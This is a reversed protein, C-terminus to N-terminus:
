AKKINEVLEEFHEQFIFHWRDEFINYKANPLVFSFYDYEYFPVILDDKSFYFNTISEYKKFENLKKDFLFSWIKENPTDQSAPAILHIQIINKITNENLYKLLFTWGLSHWILINKEWFYPLAKEFMIKWYKYQAFHTNPMPIKIVEFKDWLDDQLNDKWWKIKEEYPNFDEQMLYDEFSRFNSADVWWGIIFIKKNM